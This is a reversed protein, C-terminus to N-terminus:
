NSQRYHRCGATLISHSTRTKIFDSNTFDSNTFDSNANNTHQSVAHHCISCDLCITSPSAPTWLLESLRRVITSLPTLMSTVSMTTPPSIPAKGHGEAKPSIINVDFLSAWNQYAKTAAIM